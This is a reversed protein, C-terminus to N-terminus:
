AHAGVTIPGITLQGSALNGEVDVQEIEAGLSSFLQAAWTASGNLWKAFHQPTAPGYTSLYRRLLDGLAAPGDAPVFDPLWRRPSTYTVVPGRNQGFCLAGRVGALSMVQRVAAV